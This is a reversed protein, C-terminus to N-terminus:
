WGAARMMQKGQEDVKVVVERGQGDLEVVDSNFLLNM